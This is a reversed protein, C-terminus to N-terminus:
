LTLWGVSGEVGTGDRGTGDRGGDGEMTGICQMANVKQVRPYSLDFDFDFDITFDLYLIWALTVLTVTLM